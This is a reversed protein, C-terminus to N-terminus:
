RFGYLQGVAEQMDVTNGVVMEKPKVVGRGIEWAFQMGLVLLLFPVVVRGLVRGWSIRRKAEEYATAEDGKPRISLPELITHCSLRCLWIHWGLMLAVALFISFWTFSTYPSRARRGLLEYLENLSRTGQHITAPVILMAAALAFIELTRMGLRKFFTTKRKHSHWHTLLSLMANTHPHTTSMTLLM